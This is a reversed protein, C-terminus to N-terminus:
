VVSLSHSSLSTIPLQIVHQLSISNINVLYQRIGSHNSTSASHAMTPILSAHLHATFLVTTFAVPSYRRQLWQLHIRVAVPNATQWTVLAKSIVEARQFHALSELEWSVDRSYKECSFIGKSAMTFLMSPWPLTSYLSRYFYPGVACHCVLLTMSTLQMRRSNHCICTLYLVFSTFVTSKPATFRLELWQLPRGLSSGVLVALSSLEASWTRVPVQAAVRAM